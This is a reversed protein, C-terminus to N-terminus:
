NDIKNLKKINNKYEKNYNSINFISNNYENILNNCIKNISLIKQKEFIIRTDFNSNFMMYEKLLSRLKKNKFFFYINNISLIVILCLLCIIILIYFLNDLM